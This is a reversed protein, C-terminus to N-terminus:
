LLVWVRDSDVLIFTRSLTVTNSVLTVDVIEGRGEGKSVVKGRDVQHTHSKLRRLTLFNVENGKM